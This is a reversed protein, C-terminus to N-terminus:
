FGLNQMLFVSTSQLRGVLSDLAAYQSRLQVEKLELRREINAENDELSRKNQNLSDIRSDVIGTEGDLFGEVLGQIRAAFGQDQHAFLATVGAFDAGLAEKFQTGDFELEGSKANTKIGVQSLADFVGGLGEPRTNLVDRLARSVTDGIGGSVADNSELKDINSLLGNYADVFKKASAEIAEDDRNVGLKVAGIGSLELTLGDIVKDTSNASSTLAYGDVLFAADLEALDGLPNGTEDLNALTFGFTSANVAGGYSVEVRNEYGSDAATLILRSQGNGVNLLNATVGPNDAANNIADRLGGLSTAGSLDVTMSEGGVTLTLADGAAGGFSAASDLEKSGQKHNQALRTVEIDYVGAAANGGATATVVDDNSSSTAFRRFADFSALEEMADQFSALQSKFTGLSSIEADARSIKQQVAELPRRELRMLQSVIGEIDLGSGVGAATIAM